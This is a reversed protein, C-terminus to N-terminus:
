VNITLNQVNQIIIYRKENDLPPSDDIINAFDKDFQPGMEKRRKSNQIVSIVDTDDNHMEDIIKKARELTDSEM